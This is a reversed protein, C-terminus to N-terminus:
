GCAQCLAIFWELALAFFTLVLAALWWLNSAVRRFLSLYYLAVALAYFVVVLLWQWLLWSDCHLYVILPGLAILLPIFPWFNQRRTHYIFHHALLLVTYAALLILLILNPLHCVFTLLLYIIVLSLVILAWWIFPYTTKPQEVATVQGDLQDAQSDGKRVFFGYLGIVWLHLIAILAWLWPTCTPCVTSIGAVAGTSKESQENAQANVDFEESAESEEGAVLGSDSSSQALKKAPNANNNNLVGADSEAVTAAESGGSGTEEGLVAETAKELRCVSNCVYGSKLGLTGDCEEISGLLGDGCINPTGGGHGGGGSVNEDQELQCTATCHYGVTLGDAGDCEEGDNKVDDGCIPEEGGAGGLYYNIFNNNVLDDGENIIIPNAPGSLKQWNIKLDESLAYSNAPLDNFIYHGAADTVATSIATSTNVSDFLSVTWNLLGARDATTADSGDADEYVYGALSGYVIELECIDSCGDSNILNGDDCQENNNTISDGCYPLNILTCTASCSQHEGVGDSSDCEEAGNQYGDGCVPAASCGEDVAGDCDDDIDNACTEVEDPTGVVADCTVNLGGVSCVKQGQAQCKGLGVSCNQNLDFFTEDSAGDCDNDLLDCVENIPSVSGECSGWLGNVCTQAGYACEGIDTAGCQKTEGNQCECDENSSGDCDEDLSSSDCNETSAGFYSDCTDNGWVGAACTETGTNEACVGVGCTTPRTLSEDINGDCNNDINDCTEAAGPYVANNGDDCDATGCAGDGVFYNDGDVDFCEDKFTCDVNCNSEGDCQEGYNGDLINNGCVPLYNGFDYGTLHEGEALDVTYFDAPLIQVFDTGDDGVESVTYTGPNLGSFQYCGAADTKQELNESNNLQITWGPLGGATKEDESIAGDNNLDSYKCGALSGYECIRTSIDHYIGQLQETTPAHYYEAGTLNAIDILMTENIEDGSGLGITFIKYGYNAAEAAKSKAYNVDLPNEGSGTGYPKNAKGDTLLIMVKAAQPHANASKLELSGLNIADGINTAGSAVLSNVASKTAAHNNALSKNLTATSAFSVLASQDAVGMSDLFDNAATKAANIKTPNYATWVSEHPTSQNRATCWSQTKNYETYQKWIYGQSCSPPNICELKWYVCKSSDGMSGSRDMVLVVDVPSTCMQTDDATVRTLPFNIFFLSGLILALALLLGHWVIHKRMITVAKKAKKVLSGYARKMNMLLFM